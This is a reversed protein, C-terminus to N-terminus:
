NRRALRPRLRRTSRAAFGQPRTAACAAVRTAALKLYDDAVTRGLRRNVGALDPLRVLLLAGGATEESALVARLRAMGHERNALGTLADCMAERRVSELRAAEEAFMTKLRIVTANM